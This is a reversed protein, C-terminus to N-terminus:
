GRDAPRTSRVSLRVYIGTPLRRGDTSALTLTDAEFVRPAAPLRGDSAWALLRELAGATMESSYVNILVFAPQPKLLGMGAELLDGLDRDLRWEGSPSRGFAPPDLLLADYRRGRRHEREVFRRADDHIWRVTTVGNLAANTRAWGISPRSADVHTVRHGAAALAVSAGGTYAFLNLIDLAATGALADCMWRWHAAQEPFLGLHMSPALRVEFRLGAHGIIWSEPVHRRRQWTGQGVRGEFVADAAEWDAPPRVAAGAAHPDPRVVRVPGWQELRRLGGFDLLAYHTM